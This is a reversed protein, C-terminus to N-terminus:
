LRIRQVAITPSMRIWFWSITARVIRVRCRLMGPRSTLREPRGVRRMGVLQGVAVANM